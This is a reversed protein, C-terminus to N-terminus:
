EGVVLTFPAAQACEFPANDFKLLAPKATFEGQYTLKGKLKFIHEGKPLFTVYLRNAQKDFFANLDELGAVQSVEWGGLYPLDIVAYRRNEKVSVKLNIFAADGLRGFVGEGVPHVEGKQSEVIKCESSIFFPAQAVSDIYSVPVEKRYGVEPLGHVTLSEHVHVWVLDNGSKIVKVNLPSDPLQAVSLSFSRHWDNKEALSNDSDLENGNIWIGYSFDKPVEYFRYMYASVAELAAM